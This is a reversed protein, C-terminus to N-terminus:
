RIGDRDKVFQALVTMYEAPPNFRAWYAKRTFEGTMFRLERCSDCGCLGDPDIVLMDAAVKRGCPAKVTPNNPLGNVSKFTPATWM